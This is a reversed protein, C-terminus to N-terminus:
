SLTEPTEPHWPRPVARVPLSLPANPESRAIGEMGLYPVTEVLAVM